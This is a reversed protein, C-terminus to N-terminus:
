IARLGMKVEKDAFIPSGWVSVMERDEVFTQYGKGCNPCKVQKEELGALMIETGCSVCKFRPKVTVLLRKIKYETAEQPKNELSDTKWLIIGNPLLFKAPRPLADHVLMYRSRGFWGVRHVGIEVLAIRQGLYSATLDALQAGTFLSRGEVELDHAIIKYLDTKMLHRVEEKTHSESGCVKCKGM